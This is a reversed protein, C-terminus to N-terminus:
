LSLTPWMSLYLEWNSNRLSFMIIKPFSQGVSNQVLLKLQHQDLFTFYYNNTFQNPGLAFLLKPLGKSNYEMLFSSSFYHFALFGNFLHFAVYFCAFVSFCSLPLFALFWHFSPFCYFCLCFLLKWFCSLSSLM